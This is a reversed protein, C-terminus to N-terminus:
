TSKRDEHGATIFGFSAYESDLSIEEIFGTRDFGPSKEPNSTAGFRRVTAKAGGCTEAVALFGHGIDRFWHIPSSLATLAADVRYVRHEQIWQAAKVRDLLRDVELRRGPTALLPAAMAWLQKAWMRRSSRM